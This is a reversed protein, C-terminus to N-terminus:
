VSVGSECLPLTSYAVPKMVTFVPAPNLLSMFHKVAPSDMHKAHADADAFWLVEQVFPVIDESAPLLQDYYLCGAEARTPEILLASAEKLLKQLGGYKMQVLVVVMSPASKKLCAIPREEPLAMKMQVLKSDHILGETANIWTKVTASDMHAQHAAKNEFVLYQWIRPLKSTDDVDEYIDFHLCGPESQTPKLMALTQARYENAAGMPLVAWELMVLPGDSEHGGGGGGGGGGCGVLLWVLPCLTLACVLLRMM